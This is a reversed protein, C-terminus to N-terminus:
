LGEVRRILMRKGKVDVELIVEATAPILTEQGEGRVVYVDNSGTELIERVEGLCVGDGATFVKMNLIEHHYYRDEELAPMEEVPVLITGGVLPEAQTRTSCGAFLVVLHGRGPRVKVLTVEREEGDSSRITMKKGLEFRQPNDTLPQVRLEGMLGQPRAVKGVIVWDTSM